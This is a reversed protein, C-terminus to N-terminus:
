EGISGAIDSLGEEISRKAMELGEAIDKQRQTFSAAAKELVALRSKTDSIIARSDEEAKRRAESIISYRQKEADALIQRRKREAEAVIAKAREDATNLKEGIQACLGQYQAESAKLKEEYEACMAENEARCQKLQQEMDNIQGRLLRMEESMEKLKDESDKVLNIIFADVEDTNYGKFSKNFYAVAM